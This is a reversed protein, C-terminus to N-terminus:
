YIFGVGIYSHTHWSNPDLSANAMGQGIEQIVLLVRDGMILGHGIVQVFGLSHLGGVLARGAELQDSDPINASSELIFPSLGVTPFLTAEAVPVHQM